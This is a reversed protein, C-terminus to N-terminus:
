HQIKAGAIPQSSNFEVISYLIYFDYLTLYYSVYNRIAPADVVKGRLLAV